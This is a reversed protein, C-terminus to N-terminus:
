YYQHRKEAQNPQSSRIPFDLTLSYNQQTKGERLSTVMKVQWLDAFTPVRKTNSWLPLIM